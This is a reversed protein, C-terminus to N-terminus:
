ANGFETRKLYEIAAALVARDDGLMGIARNCRMCLLGRVAGTDHNHDVCLVNYRTAEGGSGFRYGDASCIACKGVQADYMRDYEDPTIDYRALNKARIRGRNERAWEKARACRDVRREPNTEYHQRMQERHCDKCVTVRAEGDRRRLHFDDRISKVEGCRKCVKTTAPPLALRAERALRRQESKKTNNATITCPKCWASLYGSTRRYFADVSKSEGCSSCVKYRKPGTV